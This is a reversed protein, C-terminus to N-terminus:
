RGQINIETLTVRMGEVTGEARTPIGDSYEISVADEGEPCLLRGIALSGFCHDGTTVPVRSEGFAMYAGEADTGYTIGQMIAPETYRVTYCEASEYEIIVRGNGAECQLHATVTMPFTLKRGAESSDDERKGCSLPLLLALFIIILRKM